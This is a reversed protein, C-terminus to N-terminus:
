SAWTRPDVRVIRPPPLERAADLRATLLEDWISEPLHDPIALDDAMARELHWRLREDRVAAKATRELDRSDIAYFGKSTGFRRGTWGPPPAQGSKLHHGVLGAIYRTLGGADWVPKWGHAKESYANTRTAWVRNSIRAVEAAQDDDDLAWTSHYHTRRIGDARGTTWERFWAYRATSCVDRRVRRAFLRWGERLVEDPVWDRTTSLVAHTIPRDTLTQNIGMKAATVQVNRRRCVPCSNRNCGLPRLTIEGTEFNVIEAARDLRPTPCSTSHSKDRNHALATDTAPTTGPAADAGDSRCASVPM